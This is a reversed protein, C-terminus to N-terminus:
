GRRLLAHGKSSQSVVRNKASPYTDALIKKPTRLPHTGESTQEEDGGVAPGYSVLWIWSITRKGKSEGELGDSLGHVDGAVLEKLPKMRAKWDESNIERSLSVLAAWAARYKRAARDVKVQLKKITTQSRLNERVGRSFRDKHKYCHARIRLHHRMEHLADYAQGERLRWEYTRLESGILQAKGLSSPLVLPIDHTKRPAIGDPAAKELQKRHLRAEPMHLEQM